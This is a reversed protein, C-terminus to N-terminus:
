AALKGAVVNVPRGQIFSSINVVTTDLIRRVAEQTDFASHPTIVANRLRLLVHDALLTELHKKQMLSRLLEAEERIAPEEPLVDLGVASVKGDTIAHLLAQVDILMGRATNILIVGDKMMAFEKASLFNRTSPSAPIHLTIIDSKKLVEELPAYRFGLRKALEDKPFLDYAIVEMHFGRAIEIVYQGIRGTGVVGLTKGRLDFGRLGILSFEGRRTREVAEIINHSITLILAFVHEAVTNDGYDPVNAVIIGKENCYGIDIHDYGTSRTAILKLNKLKLLVSSDLESYIFTSIIDADAYQGANEATLPGSSFRVQMSALTDFVEREWQEVEFVAIKM